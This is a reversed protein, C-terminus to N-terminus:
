YLSDLKWVSLLQNPLGSPICYIKSIYTWAEQHCKWAKITGLEWHLDPNNNLYITFFIDFKQEFYYESTRDLEFCDEM